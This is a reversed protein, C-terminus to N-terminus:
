RAGVPLWPRHPPMLVRVANQPKAGHQSLWMKLHKRSSPTIHSFFMGARGDESSWIVDCQGEVKCSTGPLMFKLEVVKSPPLPEPAQLAVGQESLDIALAPMARGPFELHVLAKMKLRSSQRRNSRLAKKSANLTRTVEEVNLPKHLVFNIGAQFAGSVPTTFGMMAGILPKREPCAIRAMKAVQTVGQLDLDLVVAAYDDNVVADVGEEATYCVKSEVELVDLTTQLLLLSSRDRSVVLANPKM